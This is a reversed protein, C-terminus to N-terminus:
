LKEGGAGTNGIESTRIYPPNSVIMGFKGKINEFLNGEPLNPARAEPSRLMKREGSCLAEKSIDAGIGKIRSKEKVWHLISLLICGSDPVCIWFIYAAEREPVEEKRCVNWRQRM